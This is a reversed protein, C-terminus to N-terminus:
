DQEELVMDMDRGGCPYWSYVWLFIFFLHGIMCLVKNKIYLIFNIEEIIELEMIQLNWPVNKKEQLILM